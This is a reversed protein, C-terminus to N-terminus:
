RRVRAQGPRRPGLLRSCLNRVAGPAHSVYFMTVGSKVIEDMRKKCKRKFPRDGVALAEDAIFVDPDLHVAVRLGPAGGHRLLLASRPTSSGASSPSTSSRTSSRLARGPLDGPDHRVPLPQRPRDARPRVRERDRDPRGIPGPHAGLGLPDIIRPGVEAADVQRQRQAGDHRRGRGRARPLQRQRRRQLRRPDQRGRAKALALQKLSRHYSLAFSKTANEVQIMTTM